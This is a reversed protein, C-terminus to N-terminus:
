FEMSFLKLFFFLKKPDKSLLLKPLRSVRFMVLMFFDDIDLVSGFNFDDNQCENVNWYKIDKFLHM